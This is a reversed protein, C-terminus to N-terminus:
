MHLVGTAQCSIRFLADLQRSVAGSPYRVQVQRVCIANLASNRAKGQGGVQREWLDEGDKWRSLGFDQVPGSEERELGDTCEM